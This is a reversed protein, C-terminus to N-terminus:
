VFMAVISPLSVYMDAQQVCVVGIAFRQLEGGSLQGVERQLVEQLDTHSCKTDDNLFRPTTDRICSVLPLLSIKV